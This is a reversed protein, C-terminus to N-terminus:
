CMEKINKSTYLNKNKDIGIYNYVPVHVDNNNSKIYLEPYGTIEDTKYHIMGMNYYEQAWKPIYYRGNSNMLDGDYMFYKNM